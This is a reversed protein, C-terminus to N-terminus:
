LELREALRLAEGLWDQRQKRPPRWDPAWGLWQVALHLRCCDLISEREDEDGTATSRSSATAAWYAAAMAIKEGEPLKGSTLAALDILGPGIAALEWDLPCICDERLGERVIINSPYFEGHIFTSPLSALREVVRDYRAALWEVGVRLPDRRPKEAAFKQARQIWVRYLDEDYRLLSAEPLAADLRQSFRGHLTALWRAAERWLAFDGIQWLAAGRVNEVFLWYRGRERDLASGYYDPTGLAANSLRHRYTEIERAPDFLFGPKAKQAADSLTERGLDKFVIRWTAGDSLSVDLEEIPFSTRFQSPRRDITVIRRDPRLRAELARELEAMVLETPAPSGETM